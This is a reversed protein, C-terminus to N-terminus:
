LNKKRNTNLYITKSEKNSVNKFNRWLLRGDLLHKGKRFKINLRHLEMFSTNCINQSKKTEYLHM